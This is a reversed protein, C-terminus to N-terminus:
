FDDPYAAHPDGLEQAPDAHRNGPHTDRAVRPDDGVPTPSAPGVVLFTPSAVAYRLADPGDDGGTGTDADADVKLPTEPRAPDPILTGLEHLLRVTGPTNWFCIKRTGLLRRLTQHGAARDLSARSLYVGHPDFVDAVTEPAASHAQRKFFADHGAYVRTLVSSLTPHGKAWGKITAAQEADQIKHLYLADMVHVMGDDARAMPVFVAPHRFGWDYGGWFDWWEPVEGPPLAPVLYAQACDGAVEPYFLGLGADWDGDALAAAMAPPLTRLGEWYSAPLSPNDKATGPVYMRTWTSGDKRHDTLVKTGKATADVYLTKLWAHGPGGPNASARARIPVTPDTSRLRTKLWHWVMPDAVLGLEDFLIATYERGIYRSVEAVTEGYGLELTAGSPWHWRKSEAEWRAGMLPYMLMMRDRIDTLDTYSTRLFLVRANRHQCYRAGCAILVDTKGPGAAGGFLAENAGCQLAKTQFGPWPTWLVEPPRDVVVPPTLPGKKSELIPVKHPGLKKVIEETPTHGGSYKQKQPKDPFYAM